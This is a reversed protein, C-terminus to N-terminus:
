YSCYNSLIQWIIRQLWIWSSALLNQLSFFSVLGMFLHRTDRQVHKLFCLITLDPYVSRELGLQKPLQQCLSRPLWQNSLFLHILPLTSQEQKPEGLLLTSSLSEGAAASHCPRWPEARSESHIKSSHPDWVGVWRFSHHVFFIMSQSWTEIDVHWWMAPSETIQKKEKLTTNPSDCVKGM